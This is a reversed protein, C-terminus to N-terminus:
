KTKADRLAKAIAAVRQINRPDGKPYKPPLTTREIVDRYPAFGREYDDAAVQVGPGYRAVGKELAKKQWKENGAADVGKGYRGAQAAATVGAKYAEEARKASEAWPRRPSKVGEEYDPARQPTVRAWKAAIASASKIGAM